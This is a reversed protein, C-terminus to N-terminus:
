GVNGESITTFITYSVNCVYEYSIIMILYEKVVVITYVCPNSSLINKRSISYPSLLPGMAGVQEKSRGFIM